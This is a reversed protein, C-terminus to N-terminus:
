HNKQHRHLDHRHQDQTQLLACTMRISMTEIEFVEKTARRFMQLLVRRRKFRYTLLSRLPVRINLEQPLSNLRDLLQM